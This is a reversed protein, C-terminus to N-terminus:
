RGKSARAKRRLEKQLMRNTLREAIALIKPASEDLAPQLHPRAAVQGERREPPLTFKSDTPVFYRYGFELLHWLSQNTGVNVIGGSLVVDGKKTSIRGRMGDIYQGTRRIGQAAAHAKTSELLVAVGEKVVRKMVKRRVIDEIGGLASLVEELGLPKKPRRPRGAV